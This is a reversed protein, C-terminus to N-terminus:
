GLNLPSPFWRKRIAPMSAEPLWLGNDTWWGFRPPMVGIITYTEDNLRLTKSLVNPDGGFLLQWRRFSLVTVPEPEGSDRIDSPQITRGLLPPVGPFQFANGSMQIGGLSEPAYEGDAARKWSQNGDSGLFGAAKDDGSLRELPLTADDPGLQRECCALLGFRTLTPTHILVSRSVM